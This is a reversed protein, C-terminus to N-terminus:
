STINSITKSIIQAFGWSGMLIVAGIISWWIASKAATIEEPNGQAKVFLFGSYIFALVVFPSLVTVAAEIVKAALESFTSVKIPNTLKEGSGGAKFPTGNGSVAVAFVFTGTLLASLIFLTGFIKKM